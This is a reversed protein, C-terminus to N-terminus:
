NGTIWVRYRKVSLLEDKVEPLLFEIFQRKKARDLEYRARLHWLYTGHDRQDTFYLLLREAARRDDFILAHIVNEKPFDAALKCALGVMEAENFAETPTSIQLDMAPPKAADHDHREISYKPAHISFTPSACDQHNEDLQANSPLAVSMMLVLFSLNAALSNETFKILSYL